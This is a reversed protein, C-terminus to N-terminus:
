VAEWAAFDAAAEDWSAYSKAEADAPMYVYLVGDHTYFANLVCTVGTEFELPNDETGEGKSGDFKGVADILDKRAAEVADLKPQIAAMCDGCVADLAGHMYDFETGFNGQTPLVSRWGADALQERAGTAEAACGACTVHYLTEIM